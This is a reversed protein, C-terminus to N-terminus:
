YTTGGQFDRKLDLATCSSAWVQCIVADYVEYRQETSTDSDGNSSCGYVAVASHSAPSWFLGHVCPEGILV